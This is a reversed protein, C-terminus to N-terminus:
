REEEDVPDTEDGVLSQFRTLCAQRHEDFTQEPMLCFIAPRAQQRALLSSASPANDLM